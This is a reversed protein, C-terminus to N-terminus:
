RSISLKAANVMQMQKQSKELKQRSKERQKDHIVKAKQDDFAKLKLQDPTLTQTGFKALATENLDISLDCDQPYLASLLLKATEANEAYIATRM